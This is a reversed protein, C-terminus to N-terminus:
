PNPVGHSGVGSTPRCRGHAAVRLSDLIREVTHRLTKSATAPLVVGIFFVRNQERFSLIKGPSWDEDGKRFAALQFQKPRPQYTSLYRPNFFPPLYEVIRLDVSTDATPALDFCLAPDPVYNDNGTTLRWDSPYKVTVREVTSSFSRALADTGPAGCGAAILGACVAITVAASRVGV